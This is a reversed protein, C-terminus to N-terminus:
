KEPKHGSFPPSPVLMWLAGGQELVQTLCSVIGKIRGVAGIHPYYWRWKVSLLSPILIEHCLATSGCDVALIILKGLNRQQIVVSLSGAGALHNKAEAPRLRRHTARCCAPHSLIGMLPAAMSCSPPFSSHITVNEDRWWCLDLVYIKFGELPPLLFSIRNGRSWEIWLVCCYPCVILIFLNTCFMLDSQHQFCM